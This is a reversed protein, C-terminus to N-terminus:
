IRIAYPNFTPYWETWPNERVIPDIEIEQLDSVESYMKKNLLSKIVVQYNDNECAATVCVKYSSIANRINVIKTLHVIIWIYYHFLFTKIEM